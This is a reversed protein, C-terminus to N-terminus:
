PDALWGTTWSSELLRERVFPDAAILMEAEERSDAEFSVLGGSRDEFPGGLYGPLRLDHWYAAHRPAVTRVRAPEPKMAYVHVFRM